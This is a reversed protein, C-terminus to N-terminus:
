DLKETLLRFQQRPRGGTTSRVPPLPWALGAQVLQKLMRRGTRQTVHMAEAVTEVDAVIQHGAQPGQARRITSVIEVARPDIATTAPPQQSDDHGPPSAPLEFQTGSDDRYVAFGGEGAHSEEVAALANEEAGRATHGAGVGVCVPVGLRHQVASMFPAATLRDTLEDLGGHTTTVLFLTDSRRAVTAGVRRAAALLRQHTALAIEQQWYDSSEAASQAAPVLRVAVMAIRHEGLRMGQGLLVATEVAERVTARTPSIREVPVGAAALERQVSLFTTFAGTSRGEEWARRHFACFGSVSEPGEYPQLAVDEDSVGIEDYAETVDTRSLSDISVRTLDLGTSGRSARLMAAYLAAGTLAVHTAPRTLWHGRRALDFLWPGPFVAADIRDALRRYRDEAEADDDYAGSVLKLRRLAHRQAVQEGADVMVRVVRRPGFLGVTIEPMRDARIKTADAGDPSDTM